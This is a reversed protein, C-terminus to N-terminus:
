RRKRAPAKVTITFTTQVAASYPRTVTVRVSLTLKRHSRLLRYARVNLPVRVRAHAGAAVLVSGEGASAPRGHVHASAGSPRAAVKVRCAAGGAAGPCTTARGTDVVPDGNRMAFSPKRAVALPPIVLYAVTVRPPRPTTPRPPRTTPPRPGPAAVVTATAQSESADYGLSNVIWYRVRIRRGLDAAALTYQMGDAGAVDVCAGGTADCREWQLFARGFGGINTPPMATLVQGLSLRGGIWVTGDLVPPDTTECDDDIADADDYDVVVDDGAGCAIAADPTAPTEAAQLDDDGEGGDFTDAGADGQLYDDGAGGALVDSGDAGYLEDDGPGGTLQDGLTGGELVDDGGGGDATVAISMGWQILDLDDNGDAFAFVLREYGAATGCNAYTAAVPTCGSVGLDINASDGIMLDGGTILPMTTHDLADNVTFTLTKHPATGTVSLTADARAVAPAALALLLAVPVARAFPLSSRGMPSCM